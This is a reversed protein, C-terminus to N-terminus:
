AVLEANLRQIRMGERTSRLQRFVKCGHRKGCQVALRHLASVFDVRIWEIWGCIRMRQNTNVLFNKGVEQCRYAYWELDHLGNTEDSQIPWLQAYDGRPVIPANM